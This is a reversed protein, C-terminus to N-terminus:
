GCYLSYYSVVDRVAEKGGLYFLGFGMMKIGRFVKFGKQQGFGIDPVKKFVVLYPLYEHGGGRHFCKECFNM